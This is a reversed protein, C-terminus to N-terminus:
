IRFVFDSVFEFSGFVDIDQKQKCRTTSMQHKKTESM